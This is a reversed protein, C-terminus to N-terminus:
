RAAESMELQTEEPDLVDMLRGGSFYQGDGQPECWLVDAIFSVQEGDRLEFALLVPGPDLNEAHALGVGSSSIDRVYGTLSDGLCDEPTQSPGRLRTIMVQKHVPLRPRTCGTPSRSVTSAASEQIRRLAKRITSSSQMNAIVKTLNQEAQVTQARERKKGNLHEQTRRFVDLGVASVLGFAGFIAWSRCSEPGLIAGFAAALMCVSLGAILETMPTSRDAVDQKGRM